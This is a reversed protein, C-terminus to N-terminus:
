WLLGWGRVSETLSFHRLESIYSGFRSGGRGWPGRDCMCLVRFRSFFFSPFFNFFLFSCQSNVTFSKREQVLCPLTRVCYIRAWLENTLVNKVVLSPISPLVCVHQIQQLCDRTYEFDEQLSIVFVGYRYFRSSFQKKKGRILSTDVVYQTHICNLVQGSSLQLLSSWM